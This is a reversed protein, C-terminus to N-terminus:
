DCRESWSSVTRGAENVSEFTFTIFPILSYNIYLFGGKRVEKWKDKWGEKRNEKRGEEKNKEVGTRGEKM